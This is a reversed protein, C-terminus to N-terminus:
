NYWGGRYYGGTPGYYYQGYHRRGPRGIYCRTGNCDSFPGYGGDPGYPWGGSFWGYDAYYRSPGPPLPEAVPARPAPPAKYVMDAANASAGVYIPLVMGLCLAIVVRRM